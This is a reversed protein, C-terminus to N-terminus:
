QALERVAFLRGGIYFRVEKGESGAALIKQELESEAAPANEIVFIDNDMIENYFVGIIGKASKIKKNELLEIVAKRSILDDSMNIEHDQQSSQANGNILDEVDIELAEAFKLITEPKPKRRGSEYMSVGGCGKGMLAALQAQTYGREKRLHKLRLGFNEGVCSPGAYKKEDSM